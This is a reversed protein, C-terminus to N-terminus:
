DGALVAGEVPLFRLEIDGVRVRDGHRLETPATVPDDGLFILSGNQGPQIYFKGTEPVM